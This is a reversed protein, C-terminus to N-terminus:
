NISLNWKTHVLGNLLGSQHSVWRCALWLMSSFSWRSSCVSMPCLRLLIFCLLKYTFMSYFVRQTIHIVREASCQGPPVQCFDLPPNSHRRRQQATQGVEFGPVFPLIHHVSKWKRRQWWGLAFFFLLYKCVFFFAFTNSYECMYYRPTNSWGHCIQLQLTTNLEWRVMVTEERSRNKKWYAVVPLSAVRSSLSWSSVPDPM